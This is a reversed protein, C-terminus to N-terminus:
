LSRAPPFVFVKPIETIVALMDVLKGQIEAKEDGSINTHWQAEFSNIMNNDVFTFFHIFRQLSFLFVM